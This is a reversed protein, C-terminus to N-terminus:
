IKLKKYETEFMWKYGGAHIRMKEHKCVRLINSYSINTQRQAETAGYFTQIYEGNKTLQVVPISKKKLTEIPMVYGKHSDSLHQIHTNSFKIGKRSKSIKNRVYKNPICAEGGMSCNYSQHHMMYWSILYKEAYCAESLSIDSLIINHKFNNWGYKLIANAFIPHYYTGNKRKVLYNKGDIGSRLNLSNSTIGIYRNGNPAIHEYVLWLKQKTQELANM